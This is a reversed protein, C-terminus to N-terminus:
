QQDSSSEREVRIRIKDGESHTILTHPRLLTGLVTVFAEPNTMEFTGTIQLNALAPDEIVLQIRNYRNLEAAIEAARSGRFVLTGSTWMTQQKVADADTPKVLLTNDRHIAIQGADVRLPAFTTPRRTDTEGASLTVSGQAVAVAVGGTTQFKVDFITGTDKMVLGEALVTLPRSSERVLSFLAEGKVLSAQLTDDTIRVDLKTNTNLTVRGRDALTVTRREGVKTSYTLTAQTGFDMVRPSILIILLLALASATARLVFHGGGERGAAAGVTPTEGRLVSPRLRHFLEAVGAQIVLLGCLCALTWLAGLKRPAGMLALLASGLIAGILAFIATRRDILRYLGKENWKTLTQRRGM